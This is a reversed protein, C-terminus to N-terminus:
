TKVRRIRRITRVWQGPCHDPEPNYRRVPQTSPLPTTTPIPTKTPTTTM